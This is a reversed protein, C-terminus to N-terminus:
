LPLHTFVELMRTELQAAHRTYFWGEARRVLLDNYRGVVYLSTEGNPTTRYLAFSVDARAHDGEIAVSAPGLLHLRRARDREHQPLEGLLKELAARDSNWWSVPRNIETSFVNLEYRGTDHFLSLWGSFDEADLLEATRRIHDRIAREDMLKAIVQDDTPSSTM